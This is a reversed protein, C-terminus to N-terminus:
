VTRVEKSRVRERGDSAGKTGGAVEQGAGGSREGRQARRGEKVGYKMVGTDREGVYEGRQRMGQGAERKKSEEGM